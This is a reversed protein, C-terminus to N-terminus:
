IPIQDKLRWCTGELEVQGFILLQDVARGCAERDLETREMLESLGLVVGNGLERLVAQRAAKQEKRRLRRGIAYQVRPDRISLRSM